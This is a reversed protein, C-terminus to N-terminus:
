LIFFAVTVFPTRLFEEMKGLGFRLGSKKISPGIEPRLLVILFFLDMQPFLHLVLQFSPFSVSFYQFILRATGRDAWIERHSEM